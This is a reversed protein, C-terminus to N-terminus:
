KRGSDGTISFQSSDHPVGAAGDGARKQEHVDRAVARGWWAFGERRVPRSISDAVAGQRWMGQPASVHTPGM